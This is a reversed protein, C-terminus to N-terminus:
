GYRFSGGTAKPESTWSTAKALEQKNGLKPLYSWKDEAMFPQTCSALTCCAISADLNGSTLSTLLRDKEGREM